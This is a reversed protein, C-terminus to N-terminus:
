CVIHLLSSTNEMVYVHASELGNVVDDGLLVHRRGLLGDVLRFVRGVHLGGAAGEAVM